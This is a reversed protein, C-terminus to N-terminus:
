GHVTGVPWRLQAAAEEHTLGELYCLVVPARYKEALRSVEQHVVRAEDNRDISLTGSEQPGDAAIALAVKTTQRDRVRRRIVAVKARAAVRVSVGYLWSGVSERSHIAGARRALVWFVAQFADHVDHADDLVSHCVRLVLPGHRTVLAEFALEGGADRGSIFRDLLERDSLGACTGPGFLTQLNETFGSPLANAM